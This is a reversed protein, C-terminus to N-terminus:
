FKVTPANQAEPAIEIYEAPKFNFMKAVINGPFTQIASNYDNVSAVYGSRAGAMKNETTTLEEQLQRFNADAKLNPYNEGVVNFLTRVNSALNQNAQVKDNLSGAKLISARANTISELVESEHDTYGKVTNVLNPILDYRRQSQVDIINSASQTDTRLHVFRNYTLAAWLVLVAVVVLIIIGTM